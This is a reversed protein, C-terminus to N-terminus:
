YHGVTSRNILSWAREEADELGRNGVKSDRDMVLTSCAGTPKPTKPLVDLHAGTFKSQKTNRPAVNSSLISM